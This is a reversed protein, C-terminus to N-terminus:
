TFVADNYPPTACNDFPLGCTVCSSKKEKSFQENRLVINKNPNHLAIESKEKIRELRKKSNSIRKRLSESRNNQRQSDILIDKTSRLNINHQKTIVINSKKNSSEGRPTRCLDQFSYDNNNPRETNIKENNNKESPNRNHMNKTFYESGQSQYHIHASEDKNGSFRESNSVVKQQLQHSQRESKLSPTRVLERQSRYFNNQSSKMLDNENVKYFSNKTTIAQVKVMKLDSSKQTVNKDNNSILSQQDESNKDEHGLINRDKGLKVTLSPIEKLKMIRNKLHDNTRYKIKLNGLSETGVQSGVKKNHIQKKSVSM